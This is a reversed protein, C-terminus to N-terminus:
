VALVRNSVPLQFCSASFLSVSALKNMSFIILAANPNLRVFLFVFFISLIYILDCNVFGLIGCMKMLLLMCTILNCNVFGYKM